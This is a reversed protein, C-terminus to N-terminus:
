IVYQPQDELIEMPFQEFINIHNRCFLSAKTLHGFQQCSNCNEQIEQRLKKKISSPPELQRKQRPPTLLSSINFQTALNQMPSNTHNSSFQRPTSNNKKTV